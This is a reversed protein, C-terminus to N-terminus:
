HSQVKTKELELRTKELELKTREIEMEKLKRDHEMERLRLEQHAQLEKERMKRFNIVAVIIVVALIAGLPIWIPSMDLM